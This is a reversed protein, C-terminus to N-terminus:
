YLQILNFFKYELGYILFLFVKSTLVKWSGDM